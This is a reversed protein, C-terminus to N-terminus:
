IELLSSLEFFDRVGVWLDGTRNRKGVIISKIGAHRACEADIRPQDGVYLATRRNADLKKVALELGLPDPKLRNVEIQRATLVVDFYDSLGMANLKLEAPYDSFVGLRLGRGKARSLFDEVGPRLCRGLIQLPELDFWKELYAKLLAISLGSLRCALEFQRTDVSGADNRGRLQELAHQYGRIARLCEWFQFPSFAYQLCMRHFIALRVPIQRYLTGDIDFLVTEIDGFRSCFHSGAKEPNNCIPNKM